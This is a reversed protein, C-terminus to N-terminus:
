SLTEAIGVEEQTIANECKTRVASTEIVNREGLLLLNL